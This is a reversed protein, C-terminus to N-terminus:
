SFIAFEIESLCYTVATKLSTFFATSLTQCEPILYLNICNPIGIIIWFVSHANRSSLCALIDIPVSNLLTIFIKDPTGGSLTNDGVSYVSIAFSRGGAPGPQVSVRYASSIMWITVVTLLDFCIIFSFNSLYVSNISKFSFPLYLRTFFFEFYYGYCLM